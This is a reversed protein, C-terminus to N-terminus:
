HPKAVDRKRMEFVLHVRYHAGWNAASHRVRNNFYWLGGAEFHSTEPGSYMLCLPNTVLPIHFRVNKEHYPGNDEHWFITSGPDLRSMMARSVEGSLHQRGLDTAMVAARAESLLKRMSPWADLGPKDKIPLDELWNERTVKDHGRLIFSAGLGIMPNNMEGRASVPKWLPPNLKHLRAMVPLTDLHTIGIFNIM